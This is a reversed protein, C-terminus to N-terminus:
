LLWMKLYKSTMIKKSWAVVAILVFKKLSLTMAFKTNGIPNIKPVIIVNSLKQYAGSKTQFLNKRGGCM